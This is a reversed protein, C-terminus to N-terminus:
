KCCEGYEIGGVVICYCVYRSRVVIEDCIFCIIVDECVIEFLWIFRSFATYWEFWDGVRVLWAVGGGVGWECVDYVVGGMEDEVNKVVVLVVCVCNEDGSVGVKGRLGVDVITAFADVGDAGYFSGEVGGCWGGGIGDSLVVGVNVDVSKM